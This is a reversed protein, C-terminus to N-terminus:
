QEPESPLSHLGLPFSPSELWDALVNLEIGTFGLTSARVFRLQNPQMLYGTTVSAGLENRLSKLWLLVSSEFPVQELHSVYRVFQSMFLWQEIRQDTREWDYYVVSEDRLAKSFFFDQTLPGVLEFWPWGGGLIYTTDNTVTTRLFPWMYPLGNWEIGEFTESEHFGYSVNTDIWREQNNLVQDAILELRNTADSVEMAFYTHMMAGQFAWVFFQDPPSGISFSEWRNWSSLLHAIGRGVTISSCPQDIIEAPVNWPPIEFAFSEPFTLDMETQLDDGDGRVSVDVDPIKDAPYADFAVLDALRAGALSLQLWENTQEDSKLFNAHFLRQTIEDLGEPSRAAGLITWGDRRRLAVYEPSADTQISWGDRDDAQVSPAAGTLSKLIISLNARWIAFQEDDLRIALAFAVSQDAQEAIELRLEEGVLDDLLPRLLAVANTDPERDLLTWPVESFKDFTEEKLRVTEPLNWVHGFTAVNTGPDIQQAGVWHLRLLAQSEPSTADLHKAPRTCGSVVLALLLSITLSKIHSHVM